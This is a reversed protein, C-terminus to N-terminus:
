AKTGEGLEEGGCMALTGGLLLLLCNYLGREQEKFKFM